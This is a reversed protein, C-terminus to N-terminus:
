APIGVMRSRTGTHKATLSKLFNFIVLTPQGGTAHIKQPIKPFKPPPPHLCLRLSLCHDRRLKNNGHTNQWFWIGIEASPLAYNCLRCVSWGSSCKEFQTNSIFKLYEVFSEAPWFTIHHVSLSYLYPGM